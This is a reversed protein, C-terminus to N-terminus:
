LIRGRFLENIVGSVVISYSFYKLLSTFSAIRGRGRTVNMYFRYVLTSLDRYFHGFIM